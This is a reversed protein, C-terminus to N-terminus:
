RGRDSVDEEIFTLLRGSAKDKVLARRSRQLQPSISPDLVFVRVKRFLGSTCLQCVFGSPTELLEGHCHPCINDLLLQTGTDRIVALYHTERRNPSGNSRTPSPAM